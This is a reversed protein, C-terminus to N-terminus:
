RVKNFVIADYFWHKLGRGNRLNELKAEIGANILM